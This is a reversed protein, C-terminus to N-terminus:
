FLYGGIMDVVTLLVPLGLLFLSIKAFVRIMEGISTMQSDKCIGAAFESVITIGAAKLLIGLYLDGDELLAFMKELYPLLVSMRRLICSFILIGCAATLATAIGPERSKFLSASIVATIGLAAIRFVDM